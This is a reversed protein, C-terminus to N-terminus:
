DRGDRRNRLLNLLLLIAAVGSMTWAFNSTLLDRMMDGSAPSWREFIFSTSLAALMVAPMVAKAITEINKM